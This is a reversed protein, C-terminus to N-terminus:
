RRAARLRDGHPVDGGPLRSVPRRGTLYPSRVDDATALRRDIDRRRSPRGADTRLHEPTSSAPASARSSRGCLRNAARCVWEGNCCVDGPTCAPVSPDCAENAVPDAVCGTSGPADEHGADNGERGDRGGADGRGPEGAGVTAGGCATFGSALVFASAVAAAALRAFPHAHTFPMSSGGTSRRPEAFGIGARMHGSVGDNLRASPGTTLRWPGPKACVTVSRSKVGVTCELDPRHVIRRRSPTSGRPEGRTGALSRRRMRVCREMRGSPPM